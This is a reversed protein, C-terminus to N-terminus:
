CPRDDVHQRYNSYLAKLAAKNNNLAVQQQKSLVAGQAIKDELSQINQSYAEISSGLMILLEGRIQAMEDPNSRAPNELELYLKHAKLYSSGIATFAQDIDQTTRRPRATHTQRSQLSESYLWQFDEEFGVKIAEANEIILLKEIGGLGKIKEKFGIGMASLASKLADYEDYARPHASFRLHVGPNSQTGQNIGVKAGTSFKHLDKIVAELAQLKTTQNGISPDELSDVSMDDTEVYGDEESSVRPGRIAGTLHHADELNPYVGAMAGGLFSGSRSDQNHHPRTRPSPSVMRTVSLEDESDSSVDDSSSGQIEGDTLSPSPRDGFIVQQADLYERRPNESDVSVDDKEEEDGLLEDQVGRTVRVRMSTDDQEERRKSEELEHLFAVCALESDRSLTVSVVDEMLGHVDDASVQSFDCTDAFTINALNASLTKIFAGLEAISGETFAEEHVEISDIRSRSGIHIISDIGALAEFEFPGFDGPGDIVIAM